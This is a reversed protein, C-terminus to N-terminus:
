PDALRALARAVRDALARASDARIATAAFYGKAQRGECILDKRVELVFAQLRDRFRWAERQARRHLRVELSGDPLLYPDNRRVTFGADALTTALRALHAPNATSRPLFDASGRAVSEPLDLLSLEPRPSGDPNVPDYTHVGIAIPSPGAAAVEKAIVAEITAHAAALGDLDHPACSAAIEAPVARRSTHAGRGDEVGFFRGADLVSRALRVRLRSGVGLANALFDAITDAGFDRERDFAESFAVPAFAPPVRDGDHISYLVFPSAEDGRAAVSAVREIVARLGDPAIRPKTPDFLNQPMTM